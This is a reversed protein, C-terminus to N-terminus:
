LNTANTSEIAVSRMYNATTRWKSGSCLEKVKKESMIFKMQIM